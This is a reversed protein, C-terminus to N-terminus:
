RSQLHEFATWHSLSATGQWQLGHRPHGAKTLAGIIGIPQRWQQRLLGLVEGIRQQYRAPDIGNPNGWGAVLVHATALSRQILVDNDPGVAERYSCQNLTAPYPSRYAFLNLYIVTGFGHQWAWAEVKGVTPDRRTADARSPNKLIVTLAPGAGVQVVLQYRYHTPQAPECHLVRRQM